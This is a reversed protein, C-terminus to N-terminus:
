RFDVLSSRSSGGSQKAAERNVKSEWESRGARIEKLDERTMSRGNISVSKGLLVKKEADLYLDRMDTAITM